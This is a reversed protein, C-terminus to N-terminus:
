IGYKHINSKINESQLVLLFVIEGKKRIACFWIQIYMTCNTCTHQTNMALYGRTKNSKVTHVDNTSKKKNNSRNYTSVCFNM